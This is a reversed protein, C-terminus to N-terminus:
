GGGRTFRIDGVAKIRIRTANSPLYALPVDEVDVIQVSAPDAGAASAKDKAEEKARALAEDRSLHDLCVISDVEGSIQAIAAGVANAVDFHEPKIVASAGKLPRHILVSGGGVLIVPVDGAALKMRDIADEVMAHIREVGRAVQDAPIQAVRRYDGIEAYRAAVALDTATLTNGGFVLAERSLEYGVSTPGIRLPDFRVRSGGGLGFSLVDPMRLNTRVGGVHVAVSAERPFGHILSGVDTTTGGIDVVIADKLGSLFAAGRMSNTPGSSFTSVPYREAHAASMLTGDNQTIYLPASIGAQALSARLADIIESALRQLCANLLTANERELLGMGGIEHSLSIAAGPLAQRLIDAASRETEPNVTSFVSAIAVARLDHRGIEHAIQAIEDPLLATLRRGDFEHGGHALFVHNGLTSRLDAPWDVFPPLAATAPLGLRVAAVEQLQRRAVVANTFHTTGVMVGQIPGTPVKPSDVLARLAELIGATVDPTTPRKIAAVVREGEMMVADTNTGGVDIGIHM